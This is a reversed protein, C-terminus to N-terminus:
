HIPVEEDIFREDTSLSGDGKSMYCDGIAKMPALCWACAEDNKLVATEHHCETCHVVM